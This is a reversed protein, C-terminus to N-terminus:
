SEKRFIRRDVVYFVAAGCANAVILKLTVGPLLSDLLWMVPAMVVTSAQWRLHYVMYRRFM